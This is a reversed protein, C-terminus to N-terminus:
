IRMQPHVFGLSALNRGRESHSTLRLIRDYDQLLPKSRSWSRCKVPANYDVQSYVPM